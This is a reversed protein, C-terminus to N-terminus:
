SQWIVVAAFIFAALAESLAHDNVAGIYGVGVVVTRQAV